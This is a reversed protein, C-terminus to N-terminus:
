LYMRLSISMLSTKRQVEWTKRGMIVCNWKNASATSTVEKFFATDGPIRWPLLGDKGIARTGRTAAVVIGFKKVDMRLITSRTGFYVM